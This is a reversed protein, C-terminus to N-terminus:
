PLLMSILVFILKEEGIKAIIEDLYKYLTERDDFEVELYLEISTADADDMSHKYKANKMETTIIQPFYKM